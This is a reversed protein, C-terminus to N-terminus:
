LSQERNHRVKWNLWWCESGESRKWGRWHRMKHNNSFFIFRSFHARTPSGVLFFYVYVRIYAVNGREGSVSLWRPNSNPNLNYARLMKIDGFFSSSASTSSSSLLVSSSIFLVLPLPYNLLNIILNYRIVFLAVSLLHFSSISCDQTFLTIHNEWPLNACARM